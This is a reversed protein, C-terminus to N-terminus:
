KTDEKLGYFIAIEEAGMPKDEELITKDLAECPVIGEDWLAKRVASWSGEDSFAKRAIAALHKAQAGDKAECLWWAEGPGAQASVAHFKPDDRGAPYWRSQYVAKIIVGIAM